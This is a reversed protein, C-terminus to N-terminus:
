RVRGGQAVVWEAVARESFDAAAPKPINSASKTDAPQNDAVPSEEQSEPVFSYVVALLLGALVVIGIGLGVWFMDSRKQAQQQPKGASASVKPKTAPTGLRTPRGRPKDSM